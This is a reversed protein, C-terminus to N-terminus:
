DVTLVSVEAIADGAVSVVLTSGVGALGVRFIARFFFPRELVPVVFGVEDSAGAGAATAFAGGALVIGGALAGRTFVRLPRGEALAGAGELAVGALAGGSTGGSGLPLGFGFGLGCRRATGSM